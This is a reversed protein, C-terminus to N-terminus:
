RMMIDDRIMTAFHELTAGGMSEAKNLCPIFLPVLGANSAKALEDRRSPSNLEDIGYGPYKKHYGGKAGKKKQLIWTSDTYLNAWNYAHGSLGFAHILLMGLDEQVMGM